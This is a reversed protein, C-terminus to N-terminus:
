NTITTVKINKLYNCNFFIKLICYFNFFGKTKSMNVITIFNIMPFVMIIEIIMAKFVVYWSVFLVSVFIRFMDFHSFLICSVSQFLFTFVNINAFCTQSILEHFFMRFAAQFWFTWPVERVDHKAEDRRVAGRVAVHGDEAAELAADLRVFACIKGAGDDVAREVVDHHVLCPPSLWRSFPRWAYDHVEAVLVLSPCSPPTWQTGLAVVIEALSNCLGVLQVGSAVQRPVSRVLARERLGQPTSDTGGSRSSISMGGAGADAGGMDLKSRHMASRKTYPAPGRQVWCFNVGADYTVTERNDWTVTTGHTWTRLVLRVSGSLSLCLKKKKKFFFFFFKWRQQQSVRVFLRHWKRLLTEFSDLMHAIEWPKWWAQFVSWPTGCTRRKSLLIDFCPGLFRFMCALKEPTQGTWCMHVLKKERSIRPYANSVSRSRSLWRWSFTFAQTCFEFRHSDYKQPGFAKKWNVVDAIMPRYLNTVKLFQKRLYQCRCSYDIQGANHPLAHRWLHRPERQRLQAPWKARLGPRLPWDAPWPVHLLLFPFPRPLVPPLLLLPRLSDFVVVCTRCASSM